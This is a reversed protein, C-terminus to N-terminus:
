TCSPSDPSLLGCGSNPWKDHSRVVKLQLVVNSSVQQGHYICGSVLIGHHLLALFSGHASFLQDAHIMGAIFSQSEDTIDRGLCTCSHDKVWGGDRHDGRERELGCEAAGELAAHRHELCSGRQVKWPAVLGVEAMM